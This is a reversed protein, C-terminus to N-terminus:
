TPRGLLRQAIQSALEDIRARLGSRAAEADRAIRERAAELDRTAEARIGAVREAQKAEEERYATSRILNADERAADLLTEYKRDLDDAEARMRDAEKLAGDISETRRAQTELWPRFLLRSLIAVLLLFIVGQVILTGDIDVVPTAAALVHLSPLV